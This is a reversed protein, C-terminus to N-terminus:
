VLALILKYFIYNFQFSAFIRPYFIKVMNLFNFWNFALSGWTWILIHFGIFLDTIAFALLIIIKFVFWNFIYIFTM